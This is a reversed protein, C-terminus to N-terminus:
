SIGFLPQLTHWLDTWYAWQRIYEIAAKVVMQKKLNRVSKAILPRPNNKNSSKVHHIDGIDAEYIEVGVTAGFRFLLAMPKENGIEILGSIEMNNKRSYVEIAVSNKTLILVKGSLVEQQAHFSSTEKRIESVDLVCKNLSSTLDDLKFSIFDVSTMLDPLDNLKEM